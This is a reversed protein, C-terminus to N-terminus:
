IIFPVSSVGTVIVPVVKLPLLDPTSPPAINASFVLFMVILLESKILLEASFPSPPAIAEVFLVKFNSLTLKLPLEAAPSLSSPPAINATPLSMVIDLEAKPPACSPM